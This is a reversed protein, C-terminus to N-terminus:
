VHHVATRLHCGFTAPIELVDTGVYQNIVPAQPTFSVYAICLQEDDEAGYVIDASITWNSKMQNLRVPSATKLITWRDAHCWNVHANVMNIPINIPVLSFSEGLSATNRPTTACRM